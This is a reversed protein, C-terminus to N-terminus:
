AILALRTLFGYREFFEWATPAFARLAYGAGLPPIPILNLLAFWISSELLTRLSLELASSLGPATIATYAIWRLQWLLVVALVTAVLAAAVAL